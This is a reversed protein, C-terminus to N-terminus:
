GSAHVAASLAGASQKSRCVGDPAASPARLPCSWLQVPWPASTRSRSLLIGDLTAHEGCETDAWWGADVLDVQLQATSHDLDLQEVPAHQHILEFLRGHAIGVQLRVALVLKELHALLVAWTGLDQVSSCAPTMRLVADVKM